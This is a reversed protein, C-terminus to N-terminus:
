REEITLYYSVCMDIRLEDMKQQNKIAARIETIGAIIM